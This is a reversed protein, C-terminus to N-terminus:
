ATKVAIRKPQAQPLKSLTVYLVGDHMEAAINEADITEPLSLVREFEGYRRNNYGYKRDGEPAKRQCRLHLKGDDLVLEIDENKVGPLDVELYLHGEDEWWAWPASWAAPQAGSSVGDFLHDFLRDVPDFGSANLAPRLRNVTAFM